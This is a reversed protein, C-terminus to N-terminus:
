GDEAEHFEQELSDLQTLEVHDILHRVLVVFRRKCAIGAEVLLYILDAHLVKTTARDLGLVRQLSHHVLHQTPSPSMCGYNM